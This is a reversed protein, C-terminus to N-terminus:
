QVQMIKWGGKTPATPTASSSVSAKPPLAIKHPWRIGMTEAEGVQKEYAGVKDRITEGFADLINALASPDTGLKGLADQMIQQQLQSPQADMKKLNDMINFFIRSRLEEASAVGTLNISMGLNNNFFKAVNLKQEGLSGQFMNSAPILSKAKELNALAQPADRLRSYNDELGKVVQSIVVRNGERGQEGVRALAKDRERPSQINAINGPMAPSGSGASAVPTPAPAAVRARIDRADLGDGFAAVPAAPAGGLAAQLAPNGQAAPDARVAALAAPSVGQLNVGVGGFDGQVTSLPGIQAPPPAPPTAEPLRVGTDYFLREGAIAQSRANYFEQMEQRRKMLATRTAADQTGAIMAEIRADNMRATEALTAFAKEKTAAIQAQRDLSGQQTKLVDGPAAYRSAVQALAEQSPNPGLAQLEARFAAERQMAAQRQQAQQMVGAIQQVQTIQGLQGATNAQDNQIGGLFGALGPVGALAGELGRAM